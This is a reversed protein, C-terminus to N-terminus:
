DVGACRHPGGCFFVHACDRSFSNNVVVQWKRVDNWTKVVIRDAVNVDMAERILFINCSNLFYGAYSKFGTVNNGKM